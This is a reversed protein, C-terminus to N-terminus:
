LHLQALRWLPGDGLRAAARFLPRPSKVPEAAATAPQRPPPQRRGAFAALTLRFSAPLATRFGM